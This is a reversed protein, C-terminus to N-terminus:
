KKAELNLSMLTGNEKELHPFYAQSYDDYETHSTNRWDWERIETFGAELLDLTLGKRNFVMNHYDYKTTQGGVLFGLISKMDSDKNYMKIVQDFDPVALRLVGGERLKRFWVDLVDKYKYRDFHELIHSAYILDCSSDGITKLTKADDIIDV